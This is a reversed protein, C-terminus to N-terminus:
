WFLILNGTSVCYKNCGQVNYSCQWCFKESKHSTSVTDHCERGCGYHCLVSGAANGLLLRDACKWMRFLTVWREDFSHTPHQTAAKKVDDLGYVCGEQFWNNDRQMGSPKYYVWTVKWVQPWQTLMGVVHIAFILVNLLGPRVFINTGFLYYM